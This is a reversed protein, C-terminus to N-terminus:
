QVQSRLVLALAGAAAVAVGDALEEGEEIVRRRVQIRLHGLGQGVSGGDVARLVDLRNVDPSENRM